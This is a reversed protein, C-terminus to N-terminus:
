SATRPRACSRSARGPPRAWRSATCCCAARAAARRARGPRAAPAAAGARLARRARDGDRGRRARRGRGRDGHHRGAPPHRRARVGAMAADKDASPMQGHVLGVREGFRARLMAHRQEAAALDGDEDAAVLPCVWYLREGRELAAEIAAVIAGIRALPMVRTAIPQRGPPKGRLESVAMDGYLSLLLTRPIPTATMVLLDAQGKAALELRQQVGFRHQEDVVALALDAYAVDDQFLAHTGIAIKAAGSALADRAPTPAPRGARPRHAAPTSPRGAGAPPRANGCAAAGPDRDAGDAGGPRRGRDRELMAMLAVLTKGSGVDGQLLRLM